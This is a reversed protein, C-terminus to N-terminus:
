EIKNYAFRYARPWLARLEARHALFERSIILDLCFVTGEGHNPNRAFCPCFVTDSNWRLPRQLLDRFQLSLHSSSYTSTTIVLGSSVPIAPKTYM